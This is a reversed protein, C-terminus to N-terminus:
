KKVRATNYPCLGDRNQDTYGARPTDHNYTLNYPSKCLRGPEFHECKGCEIREPPAPEPAPPTAYVLDDLNVIRFDKPPYTDIFVTGPISSNACITGKINKTEVWAGVDVTTVPTGPVRSPNRKWEHGCAYCIRDDGKYYHM